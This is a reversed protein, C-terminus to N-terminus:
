FGPISLVDISSIYKKKFAVCFLGLLGNVERLIKSESLNVNNQEKFHTQEEASIRGV